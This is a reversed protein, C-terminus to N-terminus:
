EGKYFNNMKGTLLYYFGDKFGIWYLRIVNYNSFRFAILSYILPLIWSATLSFFLLQPLSSYRKMFVFRNRTLYYAKHEFGGGSIMRQFDKMPIDHYTIAAPCILTKYKHNKIRFSFDTETWTQMLEEDFYGDENFVKKKIMFVNPIGESYENGLITDNLEVDHGKIKTKGVWMNYHQSKFWVFNKNAWYLMLPGIMGNNKDSEACEVLHTIMFEDIINDDDIFLIYDGQANKAGINRSKVMMSHRELRILKIRDGYIARLKETTGDTSADDIIILEINTYDSGLVSNICKIVMAIRNRTPIVVSVLKSDKINNNM